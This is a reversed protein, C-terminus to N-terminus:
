MPNPTDEEFGNRYIGVAPGIVQPLAILVSNEAGSDPARFGINATEGANARFTAGGYLDWQPLVEAAISGDGAVFIGGADFVNLAISVGQNSGDQNDARLWVQGRYGFDAPLLDFRFQEHDFGAGDSAVTTLKIATTAPSGQYLEDAALPVAEITAESDFSDLAFARWFDPVLGTTNEIASGSTGEFSPNPVKNTLSPGLVEPLAIDLVDDGGDNDLRFALAGTGNNVTPTVEAGTYETWQPPVALNMSGTVGTFLVDADFIPVTVAVGQDTKDTNGSRLYFRARYTLDRIVAFRVQSLGFGSDDTSPNGGFNTVRLRVALTEPSGPFLDGAPVSFIESEIADNGVAFLRWLSPVPGTADNLRLGQTGLFSPNPIQNFTLDEEFQAWTAPTPLSLIVCLLVLRTM